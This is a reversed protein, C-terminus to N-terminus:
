EFELWYSKFLSTMVFAKMLTPTFVTLNVKGGVRLQVPRSKTKQETPKATPTWVGTRVEPLHGPVVAACFVGEERRLAGPHPSPPAPALGGWPTTPPPTGAPWAPHPTASALGAGAMNPPPGEAPRPPALAHNARAEGGPRARPPAPGPAM